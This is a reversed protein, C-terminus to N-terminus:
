TPNASAIELTIVSDNITALSGKKGDNDLFDIFAEVEKLLPEDKKVHCNRVVYSNNVHFDSYETLCQTILNAEYYAEKCAVAITRKKFPTLWNTTIQALTEDELRFNLIANDEHLSNSRRSAFIARDTIERETIFRILDVDHVSLDTLVGVDAIRPPFPGVRTIGISFVEKNELEKKLAQVVPNFREVHGVCSKVGKLAAAEEIKKADEATSAAPKELFLHTGHEICKLAIDKHSFTPTIIFVADPSTNKFMTDIDKFFPAKFSDSPKPDCLACINVRDNFKKLIRYHNRGMAGLGILAINYM